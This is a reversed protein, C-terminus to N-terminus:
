AQAEDSDIKTRGPRRSSPRVKEALEDEGALYFLGTLVTSVGRFVSDYHAISQNKAALSNQAERMERAVTELALELERAQTRLAAALAPADVNAGALKSVPLAITEFKRAVEHGFRALVVPDQPTPGFFLERAFTDGYLAAILNRTEILNAALRDVARDRTDRQAPDDSLEREHNEDAAVMADRASEITQSLTPLLARIAPEVKNEGKPDIVRRLSAALTEVQAQAILAVATAAKQKDTVIKSSMHTSKEKSVALSEHISREFAALPRPKPLTDSQRRTHWPTACMGTPPVQSTTQCRGM